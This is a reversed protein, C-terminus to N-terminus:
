ADRDRLKLYAVVVGALYLGPLLSYLPRRFVFAQTAMAGIMTATLLGAGLTTLPPILFLLGGIIEVCGTFYRFWQGFGIANFTVAWQQGQAFKDVGTLVFALAVSVRLAWQTSADTAPRRAKM